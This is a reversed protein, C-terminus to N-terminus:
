VFFQGSSRPSIDRLDAFWRHRLAHKASLRQEPYVKMLEQVLSCGEESIRRKRLAQLPFSMNGSCYAALNKSFPAERCLTRYVIEGLSWIDVKDTYVRKHALSEAFLSGDQVRIEPAMFERTGSVTRLATM